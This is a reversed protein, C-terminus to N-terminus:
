KKVKDVGKKSSEYETKQASNLVYLINKETEERLTKAEQHYKSKESSKKYKSKLESTKKDEELFTNKIKETQEKSLGLEQSIKEAKTTAKEDSTQAFSFIALILFANLLFIKKM